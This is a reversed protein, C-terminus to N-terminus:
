NGTMFRKKITAASIPSIYVTSRGQVEALVFSKPMEGRNAVSVTFGEESAVRLFDGTTRMTTTIELDFVGIIDKSRICVGDGIHIYM